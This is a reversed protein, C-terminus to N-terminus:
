HRKKDVVGQCEKYSVSVIIRATFFRLLHCTIVPRGLIKKSLSNSSVGEKLFVVEKRIM